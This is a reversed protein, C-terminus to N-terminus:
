DLGDFAPPLQLHGTLAGTWSSLRLVQAAAPSAWDPLDMTLGLPTSPVFGFRGYYAPSGQLLVMPEGCADAAVCASRVLQDGIGRRQRDSAVALPSLMAVTHSEHRGRLECGSIMVHGVIVGDVEAVLSMSPWHLPSVRIDRVLAAEEASNFADAVVRDIADFDNPEEPRITVHM